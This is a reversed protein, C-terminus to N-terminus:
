PLLINRLKAVMGPELEYMGAILKAATPGDMPDIELRSRKAEGLLEPDRMTDM